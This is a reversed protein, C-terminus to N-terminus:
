KRQGKKFERVALAYKRNAEQAQKKLEALQERTM